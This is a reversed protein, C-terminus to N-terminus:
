PIWARLFAGMKERSYSAGSELGGTGQSHLLRGDKELVFVHPYGTISPFRGLFAMNENEPSVNVQITIFHKEWLPGVEPDETAFRDLIKCWSCWEGGVVVLVRKGSAEAQKLAAALDKEPDRTPDYLDHAACASALMALTVFARAASRPVRRVEKKRRGLVLIV